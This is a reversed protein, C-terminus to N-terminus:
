SSQQPTELWNELPLDPIRAFHETNNTVVTLGHSVPVGAIFLDIDGIPRGARCLLAKFRAFEEAAPEDIFLVQPGPPSLFAGVRAVNAEVRGSNYAGFYLEGVTPIAVALATVGVEAVRIKVRPHGNLLYICMDTDLCYHLAHNV